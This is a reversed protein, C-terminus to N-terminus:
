IWAMPKVTPSLSDLSLLSQRVRVGLQTCTVARRRPTALLDGFEKSEVRDTSFGRPQACVHPFRPETWPPSPPSRARCSRYGPGDLNEGTNSHVCAGRCGSRGGKYPLSITLLVSFHHHGSSGGRFYALNRFPGLIPVLIQFCFFLCWHSPGFSHRCIRLSTDM